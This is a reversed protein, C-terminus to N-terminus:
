KFADSYKICASYLGERWFTLKSTGYKDFTKHDYVSVVISGDEQVKGKQLEGTTTNAVTGPRKGGTTLLCESSLAYRAKCEDIKERIQDPSMANLQNKYHNFEENELLYRTVEAMRDPNCSLVVESEAADAANM